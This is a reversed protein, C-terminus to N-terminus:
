ILDFEIVNCHRVIVNVHKDYFIAYAPQKYKFLLLNKTFFTKKMTLAYANLHKVYKETHQEECKLFVIEDVIFIESICVFVPLFDDNAEYLLFFGTKYTKGKVNVKEAKMATKNSPLELLIEVPLEENCINTANFFFINKIYLNALNM